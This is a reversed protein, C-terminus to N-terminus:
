AQGAERVAFAGYGVVRGRDGATDGSNRLDLLEVAMGRRRALALLGNIPMAGCAEDPDVSAELAVISQATRGDRARAAEYPL